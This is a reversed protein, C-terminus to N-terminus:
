FHSLISVFPKVIFLLLKWLYPVLNIFILLLCFFTVSVFIKKIKKEDKFMTQLAVLFMRGGDVPGLPLLNFLGIGFNVAVMWFVLMHFWAFLEPLIKGYKALVSDRVKKDLDFNTIGLYAKSKNEPNEATMLTFTGKDTGLEVQQQPQLKATANIFQLLDATKQGNISTITFPVKVDLTSAPYGEITKGVIVGTTEFIHANLPGTLFSFILLFVLGLLINSFPGAALVSLQATKSKKAMQKEDPEVFAALIPGLFAFGSSKIKINYLRAFVGHSFEHVVAVLFIAIIWHLFSLVPLGPIKVGPLVPAVAPMANPVFILAFTGKVLLYFILVMGVFGTVVGVVGIVKLVRPFFQSIRNMLKLGLRTRYMAFVKGEVQFKSRHRFFFILLCLFFLIALLLDVNM